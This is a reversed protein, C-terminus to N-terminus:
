VHSISARWPKRALSFKTHELAQYLSHADSAQRDLQRLIKLKEDITM